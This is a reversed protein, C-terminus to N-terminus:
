GHDGNLPTNRFGESFSPESVWCRGRKTEAFISTGFISIKPVSKQRSGRPIRFTSRYRAASASRPRRSDAADPRMVQNAPFLLFAAVAPGPCPATVAEGLVFGCIDGHPGTGLSNGYSFLRRQTSILSPKEIRVSQGGLLDHRPHVLGTLRHNRPL